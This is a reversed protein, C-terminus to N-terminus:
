EKVEAGVVLEQIVENESNKYFVDVSSSYYGNQYSYCPCFFREGDLYISFGDDAREITLKEFEKQMFLVDDKLAEFDAYNHECCDQEHDYDIYSGDTFGIHSGCIKSVKIM